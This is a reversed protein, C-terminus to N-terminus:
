YTYLHDRKKDGLDGELYPPFFSEFDRGGLDVKGLDVKGFDRRWFPSILPSNSSRQDMWPTTQPINSPTQPPKIWGLYPTLSPASPSETTKQRKKSIFM